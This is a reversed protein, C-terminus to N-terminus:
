DGDGLQAKNYKPRLIFGTCKGDDGIIAKSPVTCKNMINNACSIANCDIDPWDRSFLPFRDNHPMLGQKEM